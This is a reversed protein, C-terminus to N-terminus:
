YLNINNSYYYIIIFDNNNKLSHCGLHQTVNAGFVDIVFARSHSSNTLQKKGESVQCFENSVRHM